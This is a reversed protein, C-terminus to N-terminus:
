EKRHSCHGRAADHTRYPHSPPAIPQRATASNTEHLGLRVRRARDRLIGSLLHLGSLDLKPRSIGPKTTEATITEEECTTVTM